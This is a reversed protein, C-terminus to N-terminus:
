GAALTLNSVPDILIFAGPRGIRATADFFCHVTRRSSVVGIENLELRSADIKSLDNIDIRHQLQTIQGRVTQSTHKVLYPRDAQMPSPLCGCWRPRSGARYMRCVRLGCWCTVRSIDVEDELCVTVSQPAHAEDLEGDFTVISKVRSTRGSPLVM